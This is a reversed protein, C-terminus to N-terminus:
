TNDCNALAVPRFVQNRPLRSQVATAAIRLVKRTADPSGNAGLPTVQEIAVNASISQGLVELTLGSGEFRLYPGAAVDLSQTTTGVIVSAHVRTATTNLTLALDGELSADAGLRVTITGEIRGAIGTATVVLLSSGGTLRVGLDDAVETTGAGPTPGEDGLFLAVNALGIVTTAVGGSNLREVAIDARITQGLFALDLGTLSVRVYPGAPLTTSGVTIAAAASNVAVTATVGNVGLAEISVVASLSGAVGDARIVLAGTIEGLEVADGLSIAGNDVSLTLDTGDRGFSFDGTLSQGAFALTADTVVFETVADATAFDVAVGPATSGPIEITQSVALGTSNVRVSTTGTVTVGPVGIISVTGSAVLAHGSGTEILGITAGTLLVGVALPNIAGSQLMAPGRGLFITLGSAAVVRVPQGDIVTDSFTLNGEITVFDGITLTLDSVSLRFITGGSPPEPLKFVITKGGVTLTTDIAAPITNVELLVSGSVSVGSGGLAASGSLFGAVGDARIILAGEGDFLSPDADASNLYADVGTMAVVIEAAGSAHVTRTFLFSGVLKGGAIAATLSDAEVRLYPGAPLVVSGGLDVPGPTTNISLSVTKGTISILDPVTLAATATIRGAVGSGTIVFTGTIASVDVYPTAVPGLKVSGGTVSIRYSAVGATVVREFWIAGTIAVGSVSVSLGAAGVRVTGAAISDHEASADTNIQVTLSAATISVGPVNLAPTGTFSGWIGSAGTTLTATVGTLTALGDGFVLSGNSVSVVTAAGSKEITVSGTLRQGAIVLTIDSESLQLYDASGAPLVLPLDATGVPVTTDVVAGTTNVRVGLSGSLSIGPLTVAVTGSLSAAFGADSLLLAGTGDTLSIVPSGGATFTLSGNAVGARVVTSGSADVGRQFTIDATLTQGGVSITTGIADVRLYPGAPLDGIAASGTNVAIAIGSAFSFETLASSIQAALRGAVGNATITLSGEIETLSILDTGNDEVTFEGGSV